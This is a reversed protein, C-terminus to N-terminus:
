QVVGECHDSRELDTTATLVPFRALLKEMAELLTVSNVFSEIHHLCLRNIIEILLSFTSCLRRTRPTQRQHRLCLPFPPNSLFICAANVRCYKIEPQISNIERKNRPSRLVVRYSSSRTRHPHSGVTPSM